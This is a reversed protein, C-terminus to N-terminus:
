FMKLQETKQGGNIVRVFKNPICVWEHGGCKFKHNNEHHMGGSGNHAGLENYSLGPGDHTNFPRVMCGQLMEDGWVATIIFWENGHQFVEKATDTMLHYGSYGDAFFHFRNDTTEFEYWDAAKKLKKFCKSCRPGQGSFSDAFFSEGCDVCDAAAGSYDSAIQVEQKSPKEKSIKKAM